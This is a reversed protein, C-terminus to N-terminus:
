SLWNEDKLQKGRELYVMQPTSFCPLLYCLSLLLAPALLALRARWRHLPPTLPHSPLLPTQGWLHGETHLEALLPGLVGVCALPPCSDPHGSAEEGQLWGHGSGELSRGERGGRWPSLGGVATESPADLGVIQFGVRPWM